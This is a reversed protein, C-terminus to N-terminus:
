NQCTVKQPDIKLSRQQSSVRKAYIGSLKSSSVGLGRSQCKEDHARQDQKQKQKIWKNYSEENKQGTGKNTRMTDFPQVNHPIETPYAYPEVTM